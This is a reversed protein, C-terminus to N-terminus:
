WKEGAMIATAEGESWREWGISSSSMPSNGLILLFHAQSVKATTPLAIGCNISRNGKNISDHYQWHGNGSDNRTNLSESQSAKWEIPVGEEERECNIENRTSWSKDLCVWEHHNWKKSWHAQGQSQKDAWKNDANGKAKPKNILENKLQRVLRGPVRDTQRAGWMAALISNVWEEAFWCNFRM